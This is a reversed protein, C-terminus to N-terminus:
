EAKWSTNSQVEVIAHFHNSETLWIYEPEIRVFKKVLDITCVLSARVLLAGGRRSVAPHLLGTARATQTRVTGGLRDMRLALLPTARRAEVQAAGGIRETHTTICGM